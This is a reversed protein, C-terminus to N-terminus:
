RSKLPAVDYKSGAQGTPSSAENSIYIRWGLKPFAIIEYEGENEYEWSLLEAVEGMYSYPDSNERDFFQPPSVAHGRQVAQFMSLLWPPGDEVHFERALERLEAVCEATLPTGTERQQIDILIDTLM